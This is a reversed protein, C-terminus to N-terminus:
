IQSYEAPKLLLSTIGCLVTKDAYEPMGKLKKWDPDAGFRQWAADQEKRNAFGLMYTLNPMKTGVLTEGFFVPTLGVRRFVKMEGADNFMEIKKRATKISPSEYTRLQFVRDPGKVPTDLQPVGQFAIMLSSELRKFAPNAATAAVADAGKRVFEEDGALKDVMGLLVEPSKHRLLVYVPSSGEQPYFVGVPRIGIRNLAPVAADRLHADLRTKQDENGIHYQQLLYYDRGAPEPGEGALCADALPALGAAGSIALFERRDM